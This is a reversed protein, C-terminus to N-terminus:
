QAPKQKPSLSCAIELHKTQPFMDLPVIKGIQYSTSLTKLDRALTSPNCSVYILQAPREKLIWDIVSPHCGERPPDLLLSFTGTKTKPLVSEVLGAVFEVNKLGRSKAERRALEISESHSEIGIIKKAQGALELAFFGAGCYADILLDTPELLDKVTQLMVPVMSDNVQSFAHTPLHADLADTRIIFSQRNKGSRPPQIKKARLATLKRNVEPLAIDCQEVGVLTCNDEAFLGLRGSIWTISLKNRYGYPLPSAAVPQVDADIGGIRRLTDKLQKAKIELQRPYDLHQYQCGACAQYYKCRPDVRHSSPTLVELLRAEAFNKKVQTIEVRVREGTDVFPVFVVQDEHRGVGKGGFAVDTIDIEIRQSQELMRRLTYHIANPTYPFHYIPM